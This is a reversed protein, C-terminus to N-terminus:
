KGVRRHLSLRCSQRGISHSGEPVQPAKGNLSQPTAGLTLLGPNGEQSQRGTATHEHGLLQAEPM